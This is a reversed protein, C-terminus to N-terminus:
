FIQVRDNGWDCVHIFGDICSTICNPNQFEGDNWGYRGFSTVYQGSTEYVVICHGSIDSVYVYKDAILLGSPRSLEGRGFERIFRGSSDMVQVRKNGWEAVYMNGATDFKVDSPADFEGRGSGHSGISRVFNLDLDFVQIRNNNGDCVYVLNDRLTLGRPVDFEGEKGGKRGVCKILEGTSTFKQLKHQSSVYINGSDDTAVGRPGNMQHPSDGRSGFTRIKQGRTDLISLRHGRRESVIMEERNNFAIGYPRVLGTVTRVPHGLQKPDPYVTVTFPSGNIEKDNVQVHLKHRGRSVPTYTVEYRSPTAVTVVLNRSERTPTAQQNTPTAKSIPELQATINM